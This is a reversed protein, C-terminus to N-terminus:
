GVAETWGADRLSLAELTFSMMAREVRHWDNYRIQRIVGGNTEERVEWGLDGSDLITFRRTDDAKRFLRSYM